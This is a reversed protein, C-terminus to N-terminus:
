CRFIWDYFLLSGFCFYDNITVFYYRNRIFFNLVAVLSKEEAHKGFVNLLKHWNDVCGSHTQRALFKAQDVPPRATEEDGDVVSIVNVFHDLVPGLRVHAGGHDSVALADKTESVEAGVAHANRDAFEGEVGGQGADFGVLTKWDGDVNSGVVLYIFQSQL